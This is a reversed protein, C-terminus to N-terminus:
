RAAVRLATLGRIVFFPQYRPSELLALGPAAARLQGLSIAIELRALPAGICFHM